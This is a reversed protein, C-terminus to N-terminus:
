TTFYCDERRAKVCTQTFVRRLWRPLHQPSLQTYLRSNTACKLWNCGDLCLLNINMFDVTVILVAAATGAHRDYEASQDVHLAQFEHSIATM